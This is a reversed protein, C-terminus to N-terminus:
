VVVRWVAERASAGTAPHMLIVRLEGVGIDRAPLGHGVLRGDLSLPSPGVSLLEFSREAVQLPWGTALAATSRDSPSTPRRVRPTVTHPPRPQQAVPASHRRTRPRHPDVM